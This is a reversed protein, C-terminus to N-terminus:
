TIWLRSHSAQCKLPLTYKKIFEALLAEQRHSLPGFEVSCRRLEFFSSFSPSFDTDSVVRYPIGELEFDMSQTVIDIQSFQKLHQPPIYRFSMGGLGIDVMKWYNRENSVPSVLAGQQARYRTHKRKNRPLPLSLLTTAEQIHTRQM